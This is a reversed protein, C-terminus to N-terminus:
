DGVIAIGSPVLGADALPPSYVHLSLAETATPNVVEHVHDAALRVPAGPLLWRERVCSRALYRERLAARIVAVVAESGQHDHMGLGVGAPWAILWADVRGAREEPVPLRRYRRGEGPVVHDPRLGTVLSALVAALQEHGLSHRADM